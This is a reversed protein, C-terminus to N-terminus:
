LWRKQSTRYQHSTHNRACKQSLGLCYNSCNAILSQLGSRFLV